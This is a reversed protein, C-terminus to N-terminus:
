LMDERVSVRDTDRCRYRSAGTGSRSVAFTIPRSRPRRSRSRARQDAGDEGILAPEVPMEQRGPEQRAMPVHQDFRRDAHHHGCSPTDSASKAAAAHRVGRRTARRRADDVRGDRRDQREARALQHEAAHVEAGRFPQHGVFLRAATGIRPEAPGEHRRAGPVVGDAAADDVVREIRRSITDAADVLGHIGLLRRDQEHTLRHHEALPQRPLLAHRRLDARHHPDLARVQGDVAKAAVLRIQPELHLQGTKPPRHRHDRQEHRREEAPVQVVIPRMEPGPKDPQRRFLMPPQRRERM